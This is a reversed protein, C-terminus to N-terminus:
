VQSRGHRRDLCYDSEHARCRQQQGVSHHCGPREIFNEGARYVKPPNGNMGSLFEGELVYAVATAGAHRHPPTTGKPPYYVALAVMSKGPANTLEYDYM